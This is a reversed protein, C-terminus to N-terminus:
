YIMQAEEFMAQINKPPVDQLLAEHSPSLILGTSFLTRLEKVKRRVDGPTGQTLLQQTDIGGCFSVKDFFRAKLAEADMGKALAQIPHIADVGADILDPIIDSIAGCSHYIVKVGYDHAQETLKRCGPIIFERVLEPSLMMARQSGMDNGILVADLRGKTNKYFIENAKLYFAVIKEDVARYLEPSVLMNMLATEMGFAACTDQFHACWLIGLCAKDAPVEHILRECESLDIYKEPDPWDFFALDELTEADKFCGDATLVRNQADVKGGQYWDFAAYIADSQPSHYPLEVAFFDDGVALKLESLTQVHYYDFLALLAHAEPMGLWSAPRDVNKREITAYFRERGNM